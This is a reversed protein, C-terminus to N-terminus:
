VVEGATRTRKLMPLKRKKGGKEGKKEDVFAGSTYAKKSGMRRGSKVDRRSAGCCCMGVHILWAIISCGAGIWMFAYMQNGISAGINLGAQSTIVNRFIIFM